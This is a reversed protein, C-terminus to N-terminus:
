AEIYDRGCKICDKSRRYLSEFSHAYEDIPIVKLHRTVTAQIVNVDQFFTGKMEM